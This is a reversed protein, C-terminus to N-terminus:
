RGQLIWLGCYIIYFAGLTFVSVVFNEIARRARRGADFSKKCM